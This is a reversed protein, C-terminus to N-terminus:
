RYTSREHGGEQDLREREHGCGDVGPPCRGRWTDSATDHRLLTRVLVDPDIPKCLTDNAGATRARLLMPAKGSMAVVVLTALRSDSRIQEILELGNMRPMMLDVLVVDPRRAYLYGVADIGDSAQAVDFGEDGLYSILPDLLEVEDDVVLVSRKAGVAGM